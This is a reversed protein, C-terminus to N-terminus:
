PHKFRDETAYAAPLLSICICFLMFFLLFKGLLNKPM